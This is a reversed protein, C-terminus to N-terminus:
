ARPQFGISLESQLVSLFTGVAYFGRAESRREQTKEPSRRHGIFVVDVASLKFIAGAVLEEALAVLDEAHCAGMGAGIEDAKMAASCEEDLALRISLKRQLFFLLEVRRRV